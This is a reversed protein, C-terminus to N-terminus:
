GGTSAYKRSDEVMLQLYWDTPDGAVYSQERGFVANNEASPEYRWAVRAIIAGDPFPRKRDRYAQIAVENGLIARLDNLDGAEHAVSILKWDRYGPPIAIGFVPAAEADGSGAGVAWAAFAGATTALAVLCSAIPRM